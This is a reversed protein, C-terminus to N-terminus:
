VEFGKARLLDRMKEVFIEGCQAAQHELGQFALILAPGRLRPDLREVVEMTSRLATNIAHQAIDDILLADERLCGESMLLNLRLEKKQGETM